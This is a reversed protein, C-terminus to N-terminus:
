EYRSKFKHYAPFYDKDIIPMKGYNYFIQVKKSINRRNQLCVPMASFILYISQFYEKYYGNTFCIITRNAIWRFISPIVKWRDFNQILFFTYSIFYYKYRERTTYINKSNGLRKASQNHLIVAEECLEISYGLNYCRISMDIENFYIFYESGFMGIKNLISKRILAGCGIFFLPNKNFNETEYKLALTNFIKFAVIGVNQNDMRNIATEIADNEPYSDDDLVLVYEGKAIEFGENWGAIGINKKLRILIVSPFEKEVMEASGDSSANDVVIVEINKYDQEYVKMLTNRLENRRNFSLINVTVLPNNTM